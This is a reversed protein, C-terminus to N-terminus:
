FELKQCLYILREKLEPIIKRQHSPLFRALDLNIKKTPYRKIKELFIKKGFKMKARELKKGVVKKDLQVGQEFLYWLDYFDRGKARWLFARIKEALLEKENLYLVLSPSGIPFKTKLPSLAPKLFTKELSFDIRIALPYKFEKTQYKLRFRLAQKGKWLFSIKVGPLELRLNKEIRKILNKITKESLLTSFDLDESFRPSAFFLHLCTGGKFYIKESEKERYLFNLFLIQLYERFITFQDIKFEQSLKEIQEKTIM